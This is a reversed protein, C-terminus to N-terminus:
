DGSTKILGLLYISLGTFVLIGGTILAATGGLTTLVGGGLFVIFGLVALAIGDKKREKPTLKTNTRSPKSSPASVSSTVGGGFGSFQPQGSSGTGPKVSPSDEKPSSPSRAGDFVRRGTSGCDDVDQANLSIYTGNGVLAVIAILIQKKM